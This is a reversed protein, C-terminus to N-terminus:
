PADGPRKQPADSVALQERVWASFAAAGARNMHILDAFHADSLGADDRTARIVRVGRAREVEALRTRYEAFAAPHMAELDATVPMDILVLETGRADCWDILKHLYKLHSGTRYKRLYPFEKSQLGAAKVADYRMTEFGRAPAYGNGARLADARERLEDAERVAEPCSGPIHRDAETAAWMRIGHRYRFLNSAQGIRAQVFHRTVWEASEPRLRVWRGLDGWTMLSYPGHPEHRSDNLDSATIGYVLVRPPTPCGHLVAHYFDSTTGGSLGLAYASALPKGGWPVGAVRDPDIAEAVPSGGVFVVDRPERACGVMRAAYDDPSHRDWVPAFRGVAYDTALLFLAFLVVTRNRSLVGPGPPIPAPVTVVAVSSLAPTDEAPLRPDAEPPAAPRTPAPTTV